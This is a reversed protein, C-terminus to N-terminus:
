FTSKRFIFIRLIKHFLKHGLTPHVIKHCFIKLHHIMETRRLDAKRSMDARAIRTHRTRLAHDRQM